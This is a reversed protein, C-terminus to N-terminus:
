FGEPVHHVPSHWLEYVDRIEMGYEEAAIVAAEDFRGQDEAVSLLELLDIAGDGTARMAELLQLRMAAARDYDEGIKWFRGDRTSDAINSKLNVGAAVGWNVAKRYGVDTAFLKEHQKILKEQARARRTEWGKLHSKSPPRKAKPKTAKKPTKPKPPKKPARKKAPRKRAAM